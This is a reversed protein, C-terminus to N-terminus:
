NLGDTGVKAFMKLVEIKLRRNEESRLQPDKKLLEEAEKKATNFLDIDQSLDALRLDPLGHQRDGFFDGAGRQKLDEEAIKFGDNTKCFTRLRELTEESKNDSILICYSQLDGRGVRGRLQHLQSLGFNEAGEILMITANPVDVGVEVVTTCIIIKTDGNKFNEMVAEKADASMKGHLMEIETDPFYPKIKEYYETVSKKEIREESVDESAEILPCVIYAKHGLDLENKIFKFVRTRMGGTVAYSKIPLRGKPSSKLVSIDLEGYLMLALTRPIPTASMVLKHPSNGKESLAKRQNVGFRHQEDTIVLGPNKYVVSKQMVANTGIIINAEGSKIKELIGRKEKTKLSSTLLVIEINFNKFFNKFTELHQKALIETPAMLISQVGNKYAFFCATAAVVTKGSGVDGQLLRNMPINKLMDKKIDSIASRQDNTLEFPLTKLFENEDVEPSSIYTKQKLSNSRMMQMGLMLHFGEDFALRKRANQMDEQNKPFHISKIANGLKPFNYKQIIYEPLSEIDENGLIEIAQKMNRRIMNSSIGRTLHYVPLIKSESSDNIFNPALIEINGGRLRTKGNFDYVDGTLIMKYVYPNNYFVIKINGSNDSALFTYIVFNKRIYVPTEKGDIMARITYNDESDIDSINVPETFDIYRRPFYFLLDYPTKIGLKKYKEINKEGVGKLESIGLFLDAM